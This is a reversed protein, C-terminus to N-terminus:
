RCCSRPCRRDHCGHEGRYYMCYRIRYSNRDHMELAPRAVGSVYEGAIYAKSEYPPDGETDLYHHYRSSDAYLASVYLFGGFIDGLDIDNIDQSLTPHALRNMKFLANAHGAPPGEVFTNLKGNGSVLGKTGAESGTFTEVLSIGPRKRLVKGITVYANQLVRMRSADSVSAGKRLDLGIDFKDFTISKM